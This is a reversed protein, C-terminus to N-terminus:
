EIDFSDHHPPYLYLYTVFTWVEHSPSRRHFSTPLKLLPLLLRILLANQDNALNIEM